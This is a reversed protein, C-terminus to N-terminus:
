RLVLIQEETKIAPLPNVTVTSVPEYTIRGYRAGLSSELWGGLLICGPFKEVCRRFASGPSTARFQRVRAQTEGRRTFRISFTYFTGM